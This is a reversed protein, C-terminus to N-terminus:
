ETRTKSSIERWDDVRVSAKRRSPMKGRRYGLSTSVQLREVEAMLFSNAVLAAKLAARVDGDCLAIAFDAEQELAAEPTQKEAPETV